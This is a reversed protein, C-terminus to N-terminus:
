RTKVEFYDPDGEARQLEFRPGLREALAARWEFPAAELWDHARAGARLVLKRRRDAIGERELRRLAALALTEDTPRGSADLVTEALSRGRRQRALELVCFQSMPAIDIRARDSRSAQRLEREVAKRDNQARLHVCDIAIVGGLGRLRLQRAAEKVASINLALALAQAGGQATRGGADIDITTMGRTTEIYLGGGGPVPADPELAAEFAEELDIEEEDAWVAEAEGFAKVLRAALPPAERVLEPAEGPEVEELALNPGKEAYAERAVRVGVAAGQHFGKPRGAKGFPLFGPKGRGLDIFAANLSQEVSLVRGRYIENELARTGAESWREVHLEVLRGKEFVGARTEGINEEVAILRQM